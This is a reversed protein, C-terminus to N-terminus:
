GWCAKEKVETLMADKCNAKSTRVTTKRERVVKSDWEQKCKRKAGINHTYYARTPCSHNRATDCVATTNGSHINQKGTGPAGSAVRPERRSQWAAGSGTVNKSANEGGSDM